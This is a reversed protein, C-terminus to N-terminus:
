EGAPFVYGKLMVSTENPYTNATIRVIKKQEYHKEATNFKAGIEGTGGPPIPEEPWEPVTCGCSSRCKLITLPVSGTNTFKFKHYVLEGEKVKGFDFEAEEYTIRALKTTDTPLGATAPNRVMDANAGGRLEQVGETKNEQCAAALFLVTTASFLIKRM